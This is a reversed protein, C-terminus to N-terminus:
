DVPGQEGTHASDYGPLDGLLKRYTRSRIVNVLAKIRRDGFLSNPVCLDYSERRIPFFNLGAEAGIVQVCVGADAWGSQIADAVGRHNKALRRPPTRGELLQDLCQRAGSGAERGIWTLKANVVSRLSKLRIEPSAVIGAQWDTIRLLQYGPGLVSRVLDRNGDPHDDSSLHLGAVHVLGQKLLELAEGSSRPLVLMRLGTEREFLSALLGAAPDCGAVVLTEGSVASDPTRASPTRELDPLPTVTPTTSVPYRVHRGGIEAQWYSASESLPEWAWVAESSSPNSTGFLDEVPCKLIAALALATTVSPALRESEIATVSTRSIGARQALEAQSLGANLRAERVRNPHPASTMENVEITMIIVYPAHRDLM